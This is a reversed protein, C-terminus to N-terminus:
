QICHSLSMRASSCASLLLICGQALLFIPFLRLSQPLATYSTEMRAPGLVKIRRMDTGGLFSVLPTNVPTDLADIRTYPVYFGTGRLSGAIYASSQSISSDLSSSVLVPHMGNPFRLSDPLRDLVPTEFLFGAFNADIAQQVIAIPCPVVMIAIMYTLQLGMMSSRPSSSVLTQPWQAIMSAM